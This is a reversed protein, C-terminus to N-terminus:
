CGLLGPVSGQLIRNQLGREQLNGAPTKNGSVGECALRLIGYYGLLGPVSGQLIFSQCGDKKFTELAGRAAGRKGEGKGRGAVGRRRGWSRCAKM